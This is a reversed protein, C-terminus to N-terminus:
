VAMAIASGDPSWSAISVGDVSWLVDGTSSFVTARGRSTVAVLEDGTPSWSVSTVIVGPLRGSRWLEVYGGRQAPIQVSCILSAILLLLTAYGLRRIM